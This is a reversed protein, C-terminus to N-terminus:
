AYMVPVRRSAICARGIGDLPTQRDTVNTSETLVLLRITDEFKKESNLIYGFWELKEAGFTMAINRRPDGKVGNVPADFAPPTPM